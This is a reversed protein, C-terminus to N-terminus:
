ATPLAPGLLEAPATARLSASPHWPPSRWGADSRQPWSTFRSRWRRGPTSEVALEYHGRRVNQVFAHGAIIVRANRDQKRWADAAAKGAPPRSRGRGPQQRVARHSALGSPAARGPRDPLTSGPRHRGRGAPDHDRHHRLGLVTPGGARRPAPSTWTSSRVTRTSPRTSLAGSGPSRSTPRMWTGAPDSPTGAPDPPTPWCRRSGSCWRHVSTPDVEVWARRAAKRYRPLVPQLPSVLSGRPRHQRAPLLITRLHLPRHAHAFAALRM